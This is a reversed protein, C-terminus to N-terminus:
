SANVQAQIYEDLLEQEEDSLGRAALLDPRRKWTRGLSQQLRWRRVAQHNGSLLVAPVAAIVPILILLLTRPTISM